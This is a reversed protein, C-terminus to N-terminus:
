RDEKPDTILRMLGIARSIRTVAEGGSITVDAGASSPADAYPRVSM